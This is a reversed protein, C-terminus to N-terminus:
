GNRIIGRCANAAAVYDEPSLQEARAGPDISCKELVDVWNAVNMPRSASLRACSRLTKRRHGMFLSVVAAFVGMDKIRRCKDPSRVFSVMASAVQPEPWFVSPKLIRIKKVQGTAGLMISLSGYRRSGPGAIMREAVEKQVTVFMGDAVTPGIALNAIVASAANYPLNAVLLMRGSCQRRAADLRKVVAQSISNKSELADCNIVEVNRHKELQEATIQALRRDVEVAVVRGAKAALSETLSGTGCGVELVIDSEGIDACEMLLKILNLDILFHQGLRKKPSAGAQALLQQIQRKTQVPESFKSHLTLFSSCAACDLRNIQGLM